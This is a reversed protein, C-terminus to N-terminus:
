QGAVVTLTSIMGAVYHGPTRCIVQYDGPESPATFTGTAQQGPQVELQWYINAEDAADFDEGVTTNQKMVVFNHVVAGNNQANVTVQQGAPVTFTNPTFTFETMTVDITSTPGANGGCSVLLLASLLVLVFLQKKM